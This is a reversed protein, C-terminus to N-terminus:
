IQRSAFYLRRNTTSADQIWSYERYGDCWWKNKEELHRMLYNKAVLGGTLEEDVCVTLQNSLSGKSDDILNPVLLSILGGEFDGFWGRIHPHHSAVETTQYAIECSQTTM